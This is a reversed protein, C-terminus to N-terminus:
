RDVAFQIVVEYHDVYKQQQGLRCFFISYVTYTVSIGCACTSQRFYECLGSPWQDLPMHMYESLACTSTTYAICVVIGTCASLRGGIVWALVFQFAPNIICVAKPFKIIPWYCFCQLM